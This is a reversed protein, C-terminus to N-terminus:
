RAPLWSGDADDISPDEMAEGCILGDEPPWRTTSSATLTTRARPAVGPVNVSEVVIM